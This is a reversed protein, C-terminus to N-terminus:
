MGRMSKIATIINTFSYLSHLEVNLLKTWERKMEERNPRFIRSPAGNIYGNRLM